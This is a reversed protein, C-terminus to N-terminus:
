SSSGTVLRAPAAEPAEEVAVDDESDSSAEELWKGFEDLRKKEEEVKQSTDAKGVDVEYNSGDWFDCELRRGGFWRGHIHEVCDHAAFAEKFKIVVVGDPHKSFVTVKEIEGFAGCGGAIDDNLEQEFAPAPSPHPPPPSPVPVPM